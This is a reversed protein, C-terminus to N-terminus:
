KAPTYRNRSLQSHNTDIRIRTNENRRLIQKKVYRKMRVYSHFNSRTNMYLKERTRIYSAHTRADIYIKLCRM